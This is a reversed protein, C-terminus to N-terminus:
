SKFVGAFCAVDVVGVRYELDVAAAFIGAFQRRRKGGGLLEIKGVRERAFLRGRVEKGDEVGREDAVCVDDGVHSGSKADITHVDRRSGSFDYGDLTLFFEGVSQPMVGVGEADAIDRNDAVIAAIVEFSDGVAAEAM